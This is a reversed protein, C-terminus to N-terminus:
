AALFNFPAFPLNRVVWFILVLLVALAPANPHDFLYLGMGGGKIISRLKLGFYAAIFPLSVVFLLNYNVAATLDGHLIAHLARQSGCGPCNFGTLTYFPCKPFFSYNTPSFQSYLVVLSILVLVAIIIAPKKFFM